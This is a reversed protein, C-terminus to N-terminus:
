QNKGNLGSLASEYYFAGKTIHNVPPGPQEESIAMNKSFPGKRNGFPLFFSFGYEQFLFALKSNTSKGKPSPKLM